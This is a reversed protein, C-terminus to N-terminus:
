SFLIFLLNNMKLLNHEMCFSIPICLNFFCESFLPQKASAEYIIFLVWISLVSLTASTFHKLLQFQTCRLFGENVIPMSIRLPFFTNLFSEVVRHATTRSDDVIKMVSLQSDPQFQYQQSVSELIEICDQFEKIM